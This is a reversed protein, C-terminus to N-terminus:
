KLISIHDRIRRKRRRRGREEEEENKKKKEEKKEQKEEKKKEQFIYFYRSLLQIKIMYVEIFLFNCIDKPALLYTDDSLQNNV